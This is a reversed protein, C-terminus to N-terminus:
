TGKSQEAVAMQLVKEKEALKNDIETFEKILVPLIEVLVNRDLGEVQITGNENQQITIKELALLKQGEKFIFSILRTSLYITDDLSLKRKFAQEFFGRTQIVMKHTDTSVKM